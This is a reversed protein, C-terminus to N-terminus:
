PARQPRQAFAKAWEDHDVPVPEAIPGAQYKADPRLDLIRFNSAQGPKALEAAEILLGAQPYTPPAAAVSTPVLLM